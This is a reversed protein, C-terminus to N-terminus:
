QAHSAFCVSDNATQKIFYNNIASDPDKRRKGYLWSRILTSVRWRWSSSYELDPDPQLTLLVFVVFCLCRARFCLRYDFTRLTVYYTHLGASDELLQYPRFDTPNLLAHM